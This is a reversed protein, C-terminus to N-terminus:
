FLEMIKKMYLSHLFVFYIIIITIIIIHWEILLSRGEILRSGVRFTEWM